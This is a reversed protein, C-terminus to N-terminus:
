QVCGFLLRRRHDNGEWRRRLRRVASRMLFWRCRMDSARMRRVGRRSCGQRQRDGVAPRMHKRLPDPRLALRSVLGIWLARPLGASFSRSTAAALSKLGSRGYRLFRSASRSSRDFLFSEPEDHSNASRKRCNLPRPEAPAQATLSRQSGRDARCVCPPTPLHRETCSVRHGGPRPHPPGAACISLSPTCIRISAESSGQRDHLGLGSRGLPCLLM